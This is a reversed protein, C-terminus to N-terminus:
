IRECTVLLERGGDAGTRVIPPMPDPVIAPQPPLNGAGDHKVASIGSPPNDRLSATSTACPRQRHLSRRPIPKPTTRRFRIGNFNNNSMTGPFADCQRSLINIKLRNISPIFYKIGVFM